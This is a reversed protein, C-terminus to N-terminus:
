QIKLVANARCKFSFVATTAEMLVIPLAGLATASAGAYQGITPYYFFATHVKGMNIPTLQGRRSRLVPRLQRTSGELGHYLRKSYTIEPRNNYRRARAIAFRGTPGLERSGLMRREAYDHVVTYLCRCFMAM